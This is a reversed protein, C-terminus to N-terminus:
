VFNRTDNSRGFKYVAILFFVAAFALLVSFNLGIDQLGSGSQLKEIAELVWRQPLFDAIRQMTEPMVSIPFFCGAILCSPTVVLNQMASAAGSSKAFSVIALSLSVSVLAYVALLLGLSGFSVGASLHFVARMFFLAVVIQAMMVILNVVINSLVYVRASIPSSLIRFYTRNERNKLILESLSGASTLMFMLLFGISQTSMQKTSSSDNVTSTTLKFDSEGYRKYLRDFKASDGASLRAIASVNDVYSNLMSKFYATGSAGKVTQLAIHDPKSAMVSDSYGASLILGADLKSAALQERLESETVDVLQMHNMNGMFHVTDAAIRGGGDGNVVGVRLDPQGSSGYIVTALIIGVIPLGFNIILNSRNRFTRRLTSVVLFRLEQWM